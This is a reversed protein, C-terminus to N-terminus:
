ATLSADPMDDIPFTSPEVSLTISISDDIFGFHEAVDLWPEQSMDMSASAFPTNCSHAFIWYLDASDRQDCIGGAFNSISNQTQPLPLENPVNVTDDPSYEGSELMAITDILKFTSGPQAIEA